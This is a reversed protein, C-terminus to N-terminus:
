LSVPQRSPIELQLSVYRNHTLLQTTQRQDAAVPRLDYQPQALAATSPWKTPPLNTQM